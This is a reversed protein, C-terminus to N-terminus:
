ISYFVEGRKNRHHPSVHNEEAPRSDTNFNWVEIFMEDASHFCLKKKGLNFQLCRIALEKFLKRLIAHENLGAYIHSNTNVLSYPM